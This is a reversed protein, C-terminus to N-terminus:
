TVLCVQRLSPRAAFRVLRIPLETKTPAQRGVVGTNACFTNGIVCAIVTSRPGRSGSVQQLFHCAAGHHNLDFLDEPGAVTQDTRGTMGQGERDYWDGAL